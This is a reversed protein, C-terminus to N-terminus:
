FQKVFIDPYKFYLFTVIGIASTTFLLTGQTVNLTKELDLIRKVENVSMTANTTTNTTTNTNTNTNVKTTVKNM